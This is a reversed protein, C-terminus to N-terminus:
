QLFNLTGTTRALNVRAAHLQFLAEVLNERARAVANLGNNLEFHSSAMIM